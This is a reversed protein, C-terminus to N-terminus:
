VSTCGVRYEACDSENYTGSSSQVALERMRQLMDTISSLGGEATQLLSVGDNISRVTQHLGQIRTTMKQSIVLGAADDKSSNIRIGTSIREITTATKRQIASLVGIALLASTNSM